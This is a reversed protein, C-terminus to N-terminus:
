KITLGIYENDSSRGNYWLYNQGKFIVVSPKYVADSDWTGYSPSLLLNNQPRIWHIGDKSYAECIRAVDINQYGIYYMHFLENGEKIVNCGGVKFKEWEHQIYKGLVPTENKKWNIGDSSEAYCIVDPEYAEGASYWMKFIQNIDDWLVCPNMVSEGEFTFEPKLVPSDLYRKYVYGDESEALGIYSCKGCQGTYWLLYKNSIHLVCGRNVINEWTEKEGSLMTKTKSWKIGDISELLILSGTKRESACMFLKEGELYVYPDFISGTFKDGYVPQDAVKKWGNNEAPFDYCHKQNRERPSGFLICSVRYRLSYRRNLKYLILAFVIIVFLLMSILTYYNDLNILLWLGQRM